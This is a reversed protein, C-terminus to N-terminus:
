VNPRINVPLEMSVKLCRRAFSDPFGSVPILSIWFRFLKHIPFRLEDPFVLAKIDSETKSPAYVENKEEAAKQSKEYEDLRKLVQMRREDKKEWLIQKVRQKLQESIVENRKKEQEREIANM